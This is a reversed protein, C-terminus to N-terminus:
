QACKMCKQMLGDFCDKLYIVRMQCDTLREEPAATIESHYKSRNWEPTQQDLERSGKFVQDHDKPKKPERILTDQLYFSEMHTSFCVM